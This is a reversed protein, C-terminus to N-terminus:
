KRFLAAVPKKSTVNSCVQHRKGGMKWYVTVELIDVGEVVVVSLCERLLSYMDHKLLEISDNM